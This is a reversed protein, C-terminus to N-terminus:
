LLGKFNVNIAFINGKDSLSLHQDVPQLIKLSSFPLNFFLFGFVLFTVKKNLNNM